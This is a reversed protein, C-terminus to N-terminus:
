IELNGEGLVSNNNITKINTGSVLSDQKDSLGKHYVGADATWITSFSDDVKSQVYADFRTPTDFLSSTGIKIFATNPSTEITKNYSGWDDVGTSKKIFNKNIDYECISINEGAYTENVSRYIANPSVPLFNRSCYFTTKYGGKQEENGIDNLWYGVDINRESTYGNEINSQVAELETYKSLTRATDGVTLTVGGGENDALEATTIEVEGAPNPSEGNVKKVFGNFISLWYPYAESDRNINNRIWNIM